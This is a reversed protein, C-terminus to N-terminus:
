YSFSMLDRHLGRLCDAGADAKVWVRVAPGDNEVRVPSFPAAAERVRAKPLAFATVCALAQLPRDPLSAKPLLALAPAVRDCREDILTGFSDPDMTNRLRTPIGAM